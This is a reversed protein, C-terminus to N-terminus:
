GLGNPISFLEPKYSEFVIFFVPFAVPEIEDAVIAFLSLLNILFIWRAISM